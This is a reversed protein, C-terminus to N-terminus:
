WWLALAIAILALVGLWLPMRLPHGASEGSRILLKISEPHLRLGGEAWEATGKELQGILRPLRELVSSVEAVADILRAEVGRNTRMWDEILPRALTWMNLEPALSRGVGEALVMTKQLMLLQPQTEMEFQETVQFLQALLRALSIETLPRGLIPEGISRCAQTFADISQHPPVYGAVFHVEAVQRYNGSLFGLLMDALYYRTKRDLRGMIGFDVVVIAGDADVFLNGPHLDAHFFGDRFVQNFFARAAKALIDEPPHGAAILAARDDVRIGAVRELTLVRRATRLWDIRPVRYESDGAFNEAFESAAAAELRLDMETRVTDALTNVVEVPKLRRLGPQAREALRALWFFLDLDRALAAEIGPRLVKVAVDRGDSSVAFHVQAISAAAVPRDDFSAFLAEMPRDFEAAIIARAEAAPFPPLRDQLQSLDAAFQEGFLDARTSLLQGLKIFSPGLEQLAAALREGPRGAPGKGTGRRLLRLGALLPLLAPVRELPFLADHRALILGIQVLRALNRGARLLALM